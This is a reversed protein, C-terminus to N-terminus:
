DAKTKELTSFVVNHVSFATFVLNSSTHTAQQKVKLNRKHGQMTIKVQSNLTNASLINAQIIPIVFLCSLVM